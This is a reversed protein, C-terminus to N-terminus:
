RGLEKDIMGKIMAQLDPTAPKADRLDMMARRQTNADLRGYSNFSTDLNEHGLNQSWAKLAEPNLKREYALAWLTNRFSHPNYYRLGNATFAARFINRMPQATTWRDKSLGVASFQDSADHGMKPKPFLPDNDTFGLDDRLFAIYTVVETEIFNGVPFFWTQILKSAKTDVEDPHQEVERAALRVHKLRMSIIAGDRAGSLATFAILARNRREIATGNPMARITSEIQDLTPHKVTRQASGARAEKDTLRLSAIAKRVAKPKLHEEMVMWDFFSRVHRVKAAKTKWSIATQRIAALYTKVIDRSFAVFDAYDTMAEFQSLAALKQDITSTAKEIELDEIWALKLRENKPNLETM